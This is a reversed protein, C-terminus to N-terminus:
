LLPSYLKVAYDRVMRHSSFLPSCTLISRRSRQLWRTPLGNADRDEWEPLVEQELTQYLDEADDRDQQGADTYHKPAGVSWGNTEDFGEPWWGDLVSLNIGGNLCVKQGSTGSAERPRRPNNLWVDAGSTMAAGIDINYDELFVIRDRFWAHESWEVITRILAQGQKDAPHAKGAFVLQVGRDLLARLRSPDRFILDGRKYTAFRRAFGITLADPDLQKGSRRAIHQVLDARLTNRLSWLDADPADHVSRWCAEDWPTEQWGPCWRTMFARAAPHMWFTSHVGNTIHTIPMEEPSKGPHLDGWMERTVDGHLLSVGNTISAMRMALVTMCLPDNLDIPPVRGMDMFTGHPLGSADRWRGLTANVADWGFRDHGAPVPTHTTFVTTERIQALATDDEVGQERLNVFRQLGAFACHGENLHWVDPKLHLASLLRVGGLGLLAEQEIRLRHDGGYLRNTLVRHEERAGPVHTDLLYLTVRGVALSWVYARVDHPGIPVEVVLREGDATQCPRLPLSTPDFTPYAAHQDGDQIAQRFYGEHYFLGIAILPVGLDSASRLHDGALVGLGGSYLKLSEHLGYEMCLYAVTSSALARQERGCWGSDDLYRHMRAHCDMASAQFGDDADLAEWRDAPTHQLMAIPNHDCAEWRKADIRAWLQAATADWSWWLNYALADLADRYELNAM